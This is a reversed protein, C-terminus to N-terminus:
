AGSTGCVPCDEGSFLTGKGAKAKRNKIAAAKPGADDSRHHAAHYSLAQELLQALARARGADTELSNEVEAAAERLENAARSAEDRSPAQTQLIASRLATVSEDAAQAGGDNLLVQM